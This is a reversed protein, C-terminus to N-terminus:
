KLSYFVKREENEDVVRCRCRSGRMILISGLSRKM